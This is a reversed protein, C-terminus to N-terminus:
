NDKGKMAKLFNLTEIVLKRTHLADATAVEYFMAYPTEIVRTNVIFDLLELAKELRAVSEVIKIEEIM